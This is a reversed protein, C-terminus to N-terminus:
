SAWFMMCLGGAVVLAGGVIRGAPLSEQFVLVGIIQSVIFFLVIYIGLLRAFDWKPQNVLLSYAFLMSAGLVFGLVRGSKLGWRVLADGGVELFAAALLVFGISM